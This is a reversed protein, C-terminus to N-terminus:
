PRAAALATRLRRRSTGRLSARVAAAARREDELVLVPGHTFTHSPPAFPNSQPVYHDLTPCLPGHKEALVLVRDIVLVAERKRRLEAFGKGAADNDRSSHVAAEVGIRAVVPAGGNLSPEDSEVGEAALPPEYLPVEEGAGGLGLEVPLPAHHDRRRQQLVGLDLPLDDDRTHAVVELDPIAGGPALVQSLDFPTGLM